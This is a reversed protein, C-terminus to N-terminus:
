TCIIVPKTQHLSTGYVTKGYLMNFSLRARVASRLPVSRYRPPLYYTIPIYLYIYKIYTRAIYSVLLMNRVVSYVYARRYWDCDFWKIAMVKRHRTM